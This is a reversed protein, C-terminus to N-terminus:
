FSLDDEIRGGGVRRFKSREFGGGGDVESTGSNDSNLIFPLM